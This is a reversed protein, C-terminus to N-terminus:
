TVPNGRPSWGDTQCAHTVEEARCEHQATDWPCSLLFTLLTKKLLSLFIQDLGSHSHSFLCREGEVALLTILLKM